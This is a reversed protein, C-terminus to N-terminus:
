PSLLDLRQYPKRFLKLVLDLFQAICAASILASLPDMMLSPFLFPLLSDQTFILGSGQRIHSAKPFTWAPQKLLNEGVTHEPMDLKSETSQVAM